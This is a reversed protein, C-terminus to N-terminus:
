APRIALRTASRTSVPAIGARDLERLQNVVLAWSPEVNRLRMEAEYDDSERPDDHRRIWNRFAVVWAENLQEPSLTEFRRGRMLYDHTQDMLDSQLFATATEHM